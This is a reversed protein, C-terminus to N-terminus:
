INIRAKDNIKKELKSLEVLSSHQIKLYNKLQKGSTKLVAHQIPKLILQGTIRTLVDFIKSNRTYTSRLHHRFNSSSESLSPLVRQLDDYSINGRQNRRAIESFHRISALFKTVRKTLRQNAEELESIKKIVHWAVADHITSQMELIKKFDAVIQTSGEREVFSHLSQITENSHAVAALWSSASATNLPEANCQELREFSLHASKFLRTTGNRVSALCASLLVILQFIFQVMNAGTLM